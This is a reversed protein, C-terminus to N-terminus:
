AAVESPMKTDTASWPATGRYGEGADGVLEAGVQGGDLPHHDGVGEGDARRSSGIPRRESM